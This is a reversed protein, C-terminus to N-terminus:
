GAPDAAMLDAGIAGLTGEDRLGGEEVVKVVAFGVACGTVVCVDQAAAGGGVMGMVWVAM